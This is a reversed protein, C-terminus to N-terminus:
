LSNPQQTELVLKEPIGYHRIKWLSEKHVSDFAKEFDIIFNVCIKRQWENCQELINQLTFIHETTGRGKRFDAQPCPLKDVTTKMRTMTIKSFMKSPISLLTIGRWNSGDALNGKKLLKIIRGHTWDDPLKEKEWIEVFLPHLIEAAMEPDTKFVDTCLSDTGPAKNNGLSATAAKIEAKEPPFTEIELDREAPQIDAPHQPGPRNLVEIFHETWRREQEEENILLMGDKDMVPPNIKYNTSGCIQKTIKYVTSM